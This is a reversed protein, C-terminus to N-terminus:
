RAEGPRRRILEEEPKWLSFRGSGLFFVATGALLFIWFRETLPGAQFYIGQLFLVALASARSAVGLLLTLLLILELAVFLTSVPAAMQPQFLGAALLGALLLRFILPLWGTILAGAAEDGQPASAVPLKGSVLLWDSIFGALFPLMFLVSAATTAPPKFVPFLIVAIFGMQTGALARRVPRPPLATLPLGFRKRVWIGAVFLYRALGVLLYWAAAQGYHVVLAAGVLMALGDLQLDLAQGLPTVQGFRRAAYGDIFDLLVALLFVAGPLWALWGAPPPVLLFGSAMALLAGRLLSLWNAFGLAPLLVGTLPDLNRNLHRWLFALEYALVLGPLGAWVRGYSPEWFAQLLVTGGVLALGCIAGWVVWQRKLSRISSGEALEIGMM